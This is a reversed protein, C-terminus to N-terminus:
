TQNMKKEQVKAISKRSGERNTPINGRKMGLKVAIDHSMGRKPLVDSALIRYVLSPAYGNEVAWQYISNGSLDFEERVQSSTKLTMTM